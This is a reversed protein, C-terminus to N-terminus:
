AFEDDDEAEGDAGVAARARSRADALRREMAERATLTRREVTEKGEHAEAIVDDAFDLVSERIKRGRTRVEDTVGEIAEEATEGFRRGRDALERRTREGSQPAFLIGLGAGLAAGLLFWKIGSGSDSQVITLERDDRM